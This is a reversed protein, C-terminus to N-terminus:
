ALAMLRNRTSTFDAFTQMLDLISVASNRLESEYREAGVAGSVAKGMLPSNVGSIDEFLQIQTLLMERAGIDASPSSVQHPEAGDYPHYPIVAGPTAWLDTYTKWSRGEEKCELPFLLAGKASVGMIHDMLTILRNVYKQQGIVDEVLSHVTGDVMPYMKIAYPLSGDALPSDYSDLVTGDPTLCRCRWVPAVEYRSEVLPLRRRRRSANRKKLMAGDSVPLFGFTSTLPDHCRLRQRCELTWVEIVRCRGDRAHGFSEDSHESLFMDPVAPAAYLKRLSAAKRASGQAFRMLVEAMSMDHLVGAMEIDCGRPDAFSSVFFRDPSINDAWVGCGAPRRERCIRHIAMGSILFEELTRSDLEDLRNLGAPDARHTPDPNELREMRFRGVVAKVMRRILNNTLPKCGARRAEEDETVTRNDRDVSTDSWQDGYTYRCYRRRRERLPTMRLWANRAAEILMRGRASEDNTMM